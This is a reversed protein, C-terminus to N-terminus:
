PLHANGRAAARGAAWGTAFAAQLNFGGTHGDVDLVEGAFYLGPVIRSEMTQPSVQRVDVGGATVIAETFGRTSRVTMPVSQLLRGLEQRQVRTVDRSRTAPDIGSQEVVVHALSAPLLDALSNRFERNAYAALDRQLRRDLVDAALAPKLNLRLHAASGGAALHRSVARSVRLAIPGSVGFHTFLLEGFEEAMPRAAPGHGPLCAGPDEAYAQLKVNRLSLGTLAAPWAEDCVLPVLSPYLPTVEHGLNRALRYGDGTSGTGPYSMGGTAVVVAEGALQRGSGLRVGAIRRGGNGAAGTVLLETVREGYIITAGARAAARLLADRVSAAEGSAPFVRNGREVVTDVGLSALYARLDAPGFRSLAGYLFRGNGPMGEVLARTGAQHTVNCRGKGSILLKVGAQSNREVVTVRAGLAGAQAAAM